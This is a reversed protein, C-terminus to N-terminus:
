GTDPSVALGQWLGGVITGATTVGYCPDEQATGLGIAAECVWQWSAGDDHSVLLGFTTRMVMTHPDGPAFVIQSAQPFRGNARAPRPSVLSILSAVWAAVAVFTALCRRAQM